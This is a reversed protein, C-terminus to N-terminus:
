KTKGKPSKSKDPKSRPATAAAKRAREMRARTVRAAEAKVFSDPLHTYIQTTAAYAHGAKKQTAHLSKGERADDSFATHRLCHPTLDLPLNAASAARKFRIYLGAYSFKQGRETLFFGDENADLAKALYLPRVTNVYWKLLTPTSPDEFPATRWKKGKGFVRWIGFNEFEPFDLNPEFSRMNLNIVEDARWGESLMGGFMAKDRQLCRLQVASRQNFAIGIDSELCSFFREIEEDSFSRGGHSDSGREDERKHIISNEPTVIQILDHQYVARVANRLKPTTCLYEFWQKVSGQYKRQSTARLDLDRYLSESWREFDEPELEGPIRKAFRVLSLIVARGDLISQEDDRRARRRTEYATLMSGLLERQVDSLWEPLDDEPPAQKPLPRGM